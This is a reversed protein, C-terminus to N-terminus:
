SREPMSMASAPLSDVDPASDIVSVDSPLVVPAKSPVHSPAVPTSEPVHFPPLVLPGNWSDGMTGPSAGTTAVWWKENERGAGLTPVTRPM